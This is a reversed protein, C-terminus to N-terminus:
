RYLNGIVIGADPDTISQEVHFMSRLKKPLEAVEQEAKRGKPLVWITDPTSFPRAMAIIKPLAALARASIVTAPFPAVSQAKACIVYTNPLELASSARELWECRLRRPEIMTVTIDPRAIAVALGPFGAGSGLDLWTQSTERSVHSLLQLSDVFHRRWVSSLTAAAVLNQERNEAELLDQLRGFKQVVPAGFQEEVWAASGKEDVIMM